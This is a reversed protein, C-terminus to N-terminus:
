KILVTPAMCTLDHDFGATYQALWVVGGNFSGSHCLQLAEAYSLSGSTLWAPLGNQWDSTLVAWQNSSSYIGARTLFLNSKIASLMGELLSRNVYPNDSWSNDTEVDIWWTDSHANSTDAYNIAYLMSNYGYNYAHCNADLQGCRRPTQQQNPHVAPGPYGSNVYLSYSAFWGTQEALCQNPHFALGGTVGVIGSQYYQRLRAQCNPWSVDIVSRNVSTSSLGLVVLTILSLATLGITVFRQRM